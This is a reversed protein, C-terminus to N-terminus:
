EVNQVQERIKEVEGKMEIVIQTIHLDNSKSGITNTERGIEQCLFDLRKGVPEDFKLFKRFMDLHSKLRTIEESVAVRDAFVAVETLIRSEDIKDKLYGEIEDKLRQRYADILKPSRAEVNFVLGELTDLRSLLDAKLAAGERVRWDEVQNFAAELGGRVPEWDAETVPGKREVAFIDKLKFLAPIDLDGKLPFEKKIDEAAQMYAKALPLNLKLSPTEVSVASVFISFSGRSFRKKVEDRIRGELPYFREPMRLNIDIFRHNLSKAEISYLDAGISIDSRGYGTMSRAM